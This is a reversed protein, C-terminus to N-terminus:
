DRYAERRHRVWHVHLLDGEPTFCLRYDGLRLRFESQKGQLQKVDGEGSILYRNFHELLRIATTRDLAHLDARAADSWIPHKAM